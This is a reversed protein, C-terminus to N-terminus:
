KKVKALRFIEGFNERISKINDRLRQRYDKLVQAKAVNKKQTTAKASAM